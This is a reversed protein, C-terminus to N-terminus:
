EKSVIKSYNLDIELHQGPAMVSLIIVSLM